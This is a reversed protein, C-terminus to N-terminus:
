LEMEIASDLIEQPITIEGINNHETYEGKMTQKLSVTQGADTINMDMNMALKSPYYTKKDIWIEYEIKNIKMDQSATIAETMEPLSQQLTENILKNFKEGSASLKLIYFSGDQEFTFDDVYEQLKKLEEAPNSQQPTSQTLVESMETPFKMWGEGTQEYMYIGDETLYMESEIIESTGQVEMTINQYIALPEQSAKMDIVSKINMTEAGSMQQELDMKMGFSKLSESASTAKELVEGLTLESIVENTEGVQNSENNSNDDNTGVPEAKQNCAVLMMMLLVGLLFALTKKM